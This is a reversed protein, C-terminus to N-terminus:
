FGGAKYGGGVGFAPPQTNSGNRSHKIMPNHILGHKVAAPRMIKRIASRRASAAMWGEGSEGGGSAPNAGPTRMSNSM